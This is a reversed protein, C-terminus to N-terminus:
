EIIIFQTKLDLLTNRTWIFTPKEKTSEMETTSIFIYNELAM